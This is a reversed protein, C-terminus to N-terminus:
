AALLVDRFTGAESIPIVTAVDRIRGIDDERYLPRRDDLAAVRQGQWDRLDYCRAFVENARTKAVQTSTSEASLTFVATDRRLAHVLFDVPVVVGNRGPVKASPEYDLGTDDILTEVEETFNGQAAIRQTFALDAIRICAQGLRIIGPLLDEATVTCCLAGKDHAVGYTELVDETLRRRRASRLPHIDLQDLWLFTNGFDTLIFPAMGSLLDAPNVIFLDITSGDPYRFATAIRLHGKPVRDVAEILPNDGLIEAAATM